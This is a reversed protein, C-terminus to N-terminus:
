RRVCTQNYTPKPYRPRQYEAMKCTPLHKTPYKREDFSVEMCHSLPQNQGRLESELDVMNGSISVENGGLVGIEMRCKSSNQYMQPNMIHRFIANSEQLRKKYSCRDYSTRTLSM